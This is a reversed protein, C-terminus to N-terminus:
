SEVGTDFVTNVPVYHTGTRKLMVPCYNKRGASSGTVRNILWLGLGLGALGFLGSAEEGMGMAQGLVVAAIFGLLPAIYALASAKLLLANSIGIVVQEGPAVGLTDHLRLLNEKEGFLQAVMATGCDSGASCHGCASRTRVSVWADGADVRVVTATEEIMDSM